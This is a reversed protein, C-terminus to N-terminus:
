ELHLRRDNDTELVALRSIRSFVDGDGHSNVSRSSKTRDIDRSSADQGSIQRGRKIERIEMLICVLGGSFVGSLSADRFIFLARRLCHSGLVFLYDFIHTLSSERIPFVDPGYVPSQSACQLTQM